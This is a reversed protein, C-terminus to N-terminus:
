GRSKGEKSKQKVIKAIGDVEGNQHATRKKVRSMKLEGCASWSIDVLADRLVSCVGKVDLRKVAQM